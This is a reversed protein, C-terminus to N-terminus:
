AELASLFEPRQHHAWRTAHSRRSSSTRAGARATRSTRDLRRPHRAAPRHPGMELPRRGHRDRPDRLEAHAACLHANVLTALPSMYNHPSVMVDYHAALDCIRRAESLGNNLTEVMVVDTVHREFFPRFAERRILAEGHCLRTRTQERATLLADPRVGGGGALVPRVAGAGAGLEVIGGHRYEQGVDFLIGMKPGVRERLAGVFAVAADIRFRDIAGDLTPPLGSALGPVLLNTKLARFGAAEVDDVLALWGDM